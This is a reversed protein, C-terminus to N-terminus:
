IASISVPSQSYFKCCIEIDKGVSSQYKTFDEEKIGVDVLDKKSDGNNLKVDSMLQVAFRKESTEGTEKNIYQPKEYCDIIKGKVFINM